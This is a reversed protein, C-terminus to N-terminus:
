SGQKGGGSTIAFDAIDTATSRAIDPCIAPLLLEVGHCAGMMQRCRAPVGSDMLLRYFAIGEDRLPDCENVSVVTPPLGEVDQRTAFRPWALPNRETFAEIGYAMTARNDQFDLVIGENEVSSPYEPLPWEGAIYPVLSYLGQILDLEGDQKLKMGVAFTLNGGGSEGAVIIRGPDINLDAANAHVWKLGSICDNLGAPFPAIEPVESPHVSNRFEVMAVAVGKAALMRAWTKYNGEFCSSMEMRGGHIYYVCPLTENNDPRVYRIKITNGDPSSTLTEVSVSLGASPAVEESDMSDFMATQQALAALAAPSNEQALLEERSSVNPKEVPTPMSAFFKKIRPDLRPDTEIKSRASTNLPSQTPMKTGKVMFTYVLSSPPAICTVIAAHSHRLEIL